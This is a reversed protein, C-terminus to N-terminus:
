NIEYVTIVLFWDDRVFRGVIGVPTRGDSARGIIVYRTGRPDDPDQHSIEGNLIAHEMDALDLLDEALEELAHSTM